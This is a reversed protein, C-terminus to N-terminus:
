PTENGDEDSIFAQEDQGTAKRSTLSRMGWWVGLLILVIWVYGFYEM